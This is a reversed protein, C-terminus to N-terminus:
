QHDGMIINPKSFPLSHRCDLGCPKDLNSRSPVLSALYKTSDFTCQAAFVFWLFSQCTITAACSPSMYIHIYPAVAVELIDPQCLNECCVKKGAQVELGEHVRWVWGSKKTGFFGGGDGEVTMARDRASGSTPLM